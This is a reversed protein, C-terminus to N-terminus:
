YRGEYKVGAAFSLGATCGRRRDGTVLPMVYCPFEPSPECFLTAATDWEWDYPSREKYTRMWVVCHARAEDSTQFTAVAAPSAM